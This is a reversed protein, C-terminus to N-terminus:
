KGQSLERGRQLAAELAQHFIEEFKKAKLVRLAAETTGGKSTVMKRFEAPSISSSEALLGAGVATQIAFIQADEKSLGKTEAFDALMEMMLFFYAPGSGSVATVLDFYSEDELIVTKGCTSFIDEAIKLSKKNTGGLATVARGVKAGLNPMARVVNAKEGAVEKIKAIPIGALISILTHRNTLYLQLGSGIEKLDQPKIALIVVDVRNVLGALYPVPENIQNEIAFKAAKEKILDHVYIQRPQVKRKEILGSLIAAGMNGVGIVGIKEKIGLNSTKM